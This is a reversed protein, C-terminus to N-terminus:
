RLSAVIRDTEPAPRVYGIQGRSRCAQPEYRTMVPISARAIECDRPCRLLTVWPRHHVGTDDEDAASNLIEILDVEAHPRKFIQPM